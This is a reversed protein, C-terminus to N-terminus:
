LLSLIELGIFIGVLTTRVTVAPWFSRRSMGLLDRRLLIMITPLCNVIESVEVTLQTAYSASFSAASARPPNSIVDRDSQPLRLTAKSAVEDLSLAVKDDDSLHFVGRTRDHSDSSSIETAIAIVFEAPNAQMSTFGIEEFHERCKKVPGFYLTQGKCLLLLKDFTQFVAASPQHITCCLTRQTFALM